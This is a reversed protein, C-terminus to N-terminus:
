GFTGTEMAHFLNVSVKKMFCVCLNRVISNGALRTHFGEREYSDLEESAAPGPPLSPRRQEPPVLHSLRAELSEYPFQDRLQQVLTNATQDDIEDSKKQQILQLLKAVEEESLIRTNPASSDSVENPLLQRDAPVHFDSSIHEDVCGVIGFAALIWLFVRMNPDDQQTARYQNHHFIKMGEHWPLLLLTLSETNVCKFCPETSMSICSASM